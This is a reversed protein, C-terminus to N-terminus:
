GAPAPAAAGGLYGNYLAGVDGFGIGSDALASMGAVDAMSASSLGSNNFPHMGVGVVYVPRGLRTAM